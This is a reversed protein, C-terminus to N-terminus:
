NIAQAKVGELLSTLKLHMAKAGIRAECGNGGFAGYHAGSGTKVRVLRYGGYVSAYDLMLFSDKNKDKAEHWSTAENTAKGLEALINELFHRTIRKM